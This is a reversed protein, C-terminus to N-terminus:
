LYLLRKAVIGQPTEKTEIMNADLLTSSAPIKYHVGREKAIGLWYSVGGLGSEVIVANPYHFDVGFLLLEDVRIYAAYAIMYAVTTSFYDDQFEKCISELPYAVSTPFDDRQFSTIIPTKELRLENAWDPYNQSIKDLNDMMWIKDCKFSRHSTNIGWVEDIKCLNKKRATEGLYDKISPGLGLIAVRRPRTDLPSPPTRDLTIDLESPSETNDM